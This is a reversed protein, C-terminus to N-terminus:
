RTVLELVKEAAAEEAARKSPGTGQAVAGAVAVEVVFDRRHEPGSVELTRYIPLPHHEAQAWEQLV